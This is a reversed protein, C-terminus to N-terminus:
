FPAPLTMEKNDLVGLCPYSLCMEFTDNREFAAFSGFYFKLATM